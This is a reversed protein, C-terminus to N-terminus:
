FMHETHKKYKENKNHTQVLFFTVKKEQSRIIWDTKRKNEEREREEEQRTDIEINEM